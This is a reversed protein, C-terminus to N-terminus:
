KNAEELEVIRKELLQLRKEQEQIQVNQAKIAELLLPVFSTYDVSLTGDKSEHVLEPYVQQVEQALLGIQKDPNRWDAKWYYSYGGLALLNPLAATIRTIDKKLRKDSNETLNGALVADGDGHLSLMNSGVGNGTHDYWFNLRASAPSLTTNQRGAIQWNANNQDNSLRIRAYDAGIEEIDVHVSTTSSNKEIAINGATATTHTNSDDYLRLFYGGGLANHGFYATKSNAPNEFFIQTNAWLSRPWTPQDPAHMRMLGPQILAQFDSNDEIYLSDNAYYFRSNGFRYKIGEQGFSASYNIFPSSFTLRDWTLKGFAGVTNATFCYRDIHINDDSDGINIYEQATTSQVLNILFVFLIIHRM